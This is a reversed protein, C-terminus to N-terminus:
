RRRHERGGRRNCAGGFPRGRGTIGRVGPRCRWPQIPSRTDQTDYGVLDPHHEFLLTLLIDRQLDTLALRLPYSILARADPSDYHAPLSTRTGKLRNNYSM